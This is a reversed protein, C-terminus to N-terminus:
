PSADDLPSGGQLFSMIEESNVTGDDDADAARLESLGLTDLEELSLVSPESPDAEGTATPCCAGKDSALFYRQISGLDASDVTGNGNLDAHLESGTGCPTNPNLNASYQALLLTHDLLDIVRDGNLNGNVLWNGGYTPDNKFSILYKGDIIEPHAVSRLTHRPDRATVCDYKGQPVKLTVNHASGPFNFFGGFDLTQDVVVPDKTCDQYFEFEICRSILNSTMVPSLQVDVEVTNLSNVDVSWLCSSSSACSDTATCEFEYHGVPFRGGTPLLPEFQIGTENVGHCQVILAGDCQGLATALPWTVLASLTGADANAQQDNPCQLEPAEGHIVLEGTCCTTYPVRHGHDDVLITNAPNNDSFCLGDATACAQLPRFRIRALMTPGHTGDAGLLVGVAYFIMGESENVVSLLELGFPSESDVSGGPQIDVFDLVTQDYEIQFQGGVIPRVSTGLDITVYIDEDISYCGAEPLIGLTAHLCIESTATGCACFGSTLDCELGFCDANSTCPITAIETGQCQGASNCSDMVTCSKQDNCTEDIECRDVIIQRVAEALDVKPDKSQVVMGGTGLSLLTALNLACADAGSGVIPSVIVNNAIAVAIANDTSDRDDGPDKCGEPLSGDCPGEDSVPVIIRTAGLTWSFREAVIATAPGWSEYASTGDPFPCGAANGPVAGGLLGLVNDTLCSFSGGPTQTIGLFHAQVVVGQQNKDFVVQTIETCLASAEDRMSGSTDMVFVLDIPPCIYRPTCPVCEAIPINTCLGDSCVDSTCAQADDCESSDICEADGTVAPQPDVSNLQGVPASELPELVPLPDGGSTGGLRLLTVGAFLLAALRPGGKEREWGM